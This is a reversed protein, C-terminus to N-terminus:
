CGRSLYRDSSGPERDHIRISMGGEITRWMNLIGGLDKVRKESDGLRLELWAPVDLFMDASEINAMM